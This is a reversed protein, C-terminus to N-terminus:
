ICLEGFFGRSFDYERGYSMADWSDSWWCPQCYIPHPADPRHSTIVEKGCLKCQNKFLSRENFQLMRRQMRCEPCLTPPPVGIKEYFTFDNPEILFETKCNQCSKKNEM